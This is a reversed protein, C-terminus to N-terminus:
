DKHKDSNDRARNVERNIQAMMKYTEELQKRYLRDEKTVLDATAALNYIATNLEV